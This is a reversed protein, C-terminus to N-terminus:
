SAERQAARRAQSRASFYDALGTHEPNANAKLGLAQRDRAVQDRHIGTLEALDRDMLGQKHLRAVVELREATGLKVERDGDMRRLVAAEDYAPAGLDVVEAELRDMPDPLAEGTFLRGGVRLPPAWGLSAAYRRARSAAIKDRHETEPPAQHALELYLEYVARATDAYVERRGHILPTMNSRQIGLREGLKSGSWGNAMLAQLRRATDSQDVTTRSAHGFTVALLKEATEKRVRRAPPRVRQGSGKCGRQPGEVQAYVGYILKSAAGNSIGAAAAIRKLGMGADMLARVHARVPEADVLNDWRGYAQQRVREQEYATAADKCPICRCKDWTYTAYQGHEHPQGAHLCPKPTRDIAEMRARGREAKAAKENWRQCSHQRKGFDARAKTAYEGTWPCNRCSRRFTGRKVPRSM